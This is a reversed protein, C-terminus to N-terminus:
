LEEVQRLRLWWYDRPKKGYGSFEAKTVVSRLKLVVWTYSREETKDSCVRKM